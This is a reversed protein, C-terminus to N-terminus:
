SPNFEFRAFVVPPTSITAGSLGLLDDPATGALSSAPTTYGYLANMEDPSDQDQFGLVVAESASAAKAVPADNSTVLVALFYMGAELDEAFIMSKVGTGTFIGTNSAILTEPYNQFTRRSYIGYTLSYNGTGGTSFDVAINVLRARGGLFIPVYVPTDELITYTNTLTSGSKCNCHYVEFNYQDTEHDLWIEADQVGPIGTNSDVYAKTAADQPSTPDLLSTIQNSNMDLENFSNNINVGIGFEQTGAIRFLHGDTGGTNYILNILEKAIFDIGSGPLTVNDRFEVGGVDQLFFGDGDIDSVWPTQSGASILSTETGASDLFFPTTTGAVDRLYILGNDAAPNAPLTIEELQLFNDGLDLNTLLKVNGDNNDNLTLLNTPTGNLNVGFKLSGSGDTTEVETDSTIFGMSVGTSTNATNALIAITGATGVQEVRTNYLQFVPATVNRKELTSDSLIMKIVNGSSWIWSDAADINSVLNGDADLYWVVDNVSTASTTGGSIQLRDINLADNAGFTVDTGLTLLTDTQESRIINNTFIQVVNDSISVIGSDEDADLFIENTNLSIDTAFLAKTPSFLVNATVTGTFISLNNPATLIAQGTSGSQQEVLFLNDADVAHQARLLLVVDANNSVTFDFQDQTTFKIELNGDDAGTRGAAFIVNNPFKLQGADASMAGFALEQQAIWAAGDWELHEFQLTGDPVNGGGSGTSLNEAYYTVGGDTTTFRIVTRADATNDITIGAPLINNLLNITYGGTADITVDLIFQMMKNTGPGFSFAFDTDGNLTMKAIHSDVRNLDIVLTLNGLTGFDRIPIWEPYANTAAGDGTQVGTDRTSENRAVVEPSFTQVELQEVKDTLDQIRNEDDDIRFAM